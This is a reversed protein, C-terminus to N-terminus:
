VSFRVFDNFKIEGPYNRDENSLIIKRVIGIFHYVKILTDTEPPSIGALM